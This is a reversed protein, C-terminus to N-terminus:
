NLDLAMQGELQEENWANNYADELIERLNEVTAERPFIWQRHRPYYTPNHDLNSFNSELTEPGWIALKPSMFLNVGFILRRGYCFVFYYKRFRCELRWGKQQIFSQLEAGLHYLEEDRVRDDYHGRTEEPVLAKFREPTWERNEVTLSEIEQLAPTISAILVTDDALQALELAKLYDKKAERFCRLDRKVDGRLKYSRRNDPDLRIAESFDTIASENQYLYYNATGRGHYASVNNCEARIVQDFDAIAENYQELRVKAHGRLTYIETDNPNQHIAANYDRIAEEYRGNQYASFGRRKYDPVDYPRRQTRQHVFGEFDPFLTAETMQSFDKLSTLINEKSRAPISCIIDPEIIRDGGFLFISYQLFIRNNM